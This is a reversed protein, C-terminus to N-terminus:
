RGVCSIERTEMRLRRATNGVHAHSWEKTVPRPPLSNLYDQTHPLQSGTRGQALNLLEEHEDLYRQRTEHDENDSYASVSSSDDKVGLASPVVINGYESDDDAWWESDISTVTDWRSLASRQANMDHRGAKLPEPVASQQSMDGWKPKSASHMPVRMSLRKFIKPAVSSHADRGEHQSMCRSMRVQDESRLIRPPNSTRASRSGRLDARDHDKIETMRRSRPSSTSSAVATSADSLRKEEESEGGDGTKEDHDKLREMWQGGREGINTFLTSGEPRYPRQPHQQVRTEWGPNKWDEVGAGVWEGNELQPGMWEVNDITGAAQRKAFRRDKRVAKMRERPGEGEFWWGLWGEDVLQVKRRSGRHLRVSGALVGLADMAGFDNYLRSLACALCGQVSTGPEFIRRKQWPFLKGLCENLVESREAPHLAKLTQLHTYMDYGLLNTLHILPAEKLKEHLPCLNCKQSAPKRENNFRQRERIFQM